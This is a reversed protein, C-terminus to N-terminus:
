QPKAMYLRFPQNFNGSHLEVKNDGKFTCQFITANEKKDGNAKMENKEDITIYKGNTAIIVVYGPSVPIFTFRESIDWGYNETILINQASDTIVLKNESNRLYFTGTSIEEMSLEEPLGKMARVPDTLRLKDWWHDPKEVKGFIYWYSEKTMAEYHLIFNNYQYIQLMNLLIFFSILTITILKKWKRNMLFTYSAGMPIAFVAYLDIVPRMGFSGGYWWSWWCFVVFFFIPLIVLSGLVIKKAENKIFFFGIIAFAMIPTYLLWGKRYGFFGELIHPHNFYFREGTYSNYLWQGTVMKWYLLQPIQILFVVFLILSIKTWNTKILNLKEALYHKDAKGYLLPFLCFPLDSPRVLIILGCIIGLTLTRKITAQEYWKITFYMMLSVLAFIFQHPMLAEGYSYWLLNTGFYVSIIVWLTIKESYFLLLTRRLFLLGIFLYIFCGVALCAQYAETYGNCEYGGLPGVIYHAILFFPLYLISMGMSTKIIYHGEPTTLPWYRGKVPIETHNLFNLTIDHDIFVAPLYSYYSVVDAKIQDRSWNKQNSSLLFWSIFICLFTIKSSKTM